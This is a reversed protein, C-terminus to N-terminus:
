TSSNKLNTDLQKNAKNSASIVKQQYITKSLLTKSGLLCFVALTVALTFAVLNRVQADTLTVTTKKSIQIKIM